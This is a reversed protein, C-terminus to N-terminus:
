SLRIGGFVPVRSGGTLLSADLNIQRSRFQFLMLTDVAAIWGRCILARWLLVISKPNVTWNRRRLEVTARRRGYSPTEVAIRQIADRLDMDPFESMEQAVRKKIRRIYEYSSIRHGPELGVQVFGTHMATNSTYVASFDNDVGINDVIIGIDDPHVVDKILSELRAIEQETVTL